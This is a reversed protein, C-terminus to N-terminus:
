LSVENVTRTLVRDRRQAREALRHLRDGGHQHPFSAVLVLGSRRRRHPSPRASNPGHDYATGSDVFVTFGIRGFKLPSKVPIRWEISGATLTDGTLFRDQVQPRDLIRRPHFAPLAQTM